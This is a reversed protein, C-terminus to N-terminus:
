PKGPTGEPRRKQLYEMLPFTLDMFLTTKNKLLGELAGIDLLLKALEPNKEFEALLRAAQADGEGRIALATSNAQSIMSQADTEASNRVAAAKAIGESQIKTVLNQRESAMRALVTETNSQPLNFRKIHVFRVDIGYNQNKCQDRLVTFIEQEIQDFKLKTSDLNIFDQLPHKGIVQKQANRLMEGLKVSAASHSGRDFRPFFEGANDVAWGAYCTILVGYNDSTTSEQEGSELNRIRKDLKYVKQVPWLQFYPGPDSKQDTPKGFTTVVAVETTRVQYVFMLLGFIVLLVFGIAISFPNNKM